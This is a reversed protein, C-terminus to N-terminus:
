FLEISPGSTDPAEDGHLAERSLYDTVVGALMGALRDWDPEVPEAGAQALVANRQAMADVVREVCQRVIDQYQLQSMIESASSAVHTGHRALEAFREHTGTSAAALSARLREVSSAAVAIERMQQRASEDGLGLGTKLLAHIRELAAGIHQAAQSSDNALVRMEQAVVKFAAGEQGARSAEIAANLSLLHSQMSVARMTEAMSGLSRIEEAIDHIHALDRSLREPMGGLFQAMRELETLDGQMQQEATDAQQTAEALQGSLRQSEDSLDRMQHMIAVAADETRAVAAGLRQAFEDDLLQSQRLLESRAPASGPAAAAPEAPMPQPGQPARHWLRRLWAIGSFPLWRTRNM